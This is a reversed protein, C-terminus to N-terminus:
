LHARAALRARRILTRVTNIPKKLRQAIEQYQYGESHMLIASRQDPTLHALAERVADDTVLDDEMSDHTALADAHDLSVRGKKQSRYFMKLETVAIGYLYPLVPRTIDFLALSKYFKVFVIQALDDAQDKDFLRSRIYGHIQSEYADIIHRYEDIDGARIKQIITTDDM